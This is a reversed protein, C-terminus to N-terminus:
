SAVEERLHLTLRGPDRDFYSRWRWRPLEAAVTLEGEERRVEVELPLDLELRVVRLGPHRASDPEVAAAIETVLAHLPRRRM